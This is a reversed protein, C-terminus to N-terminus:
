ARKYTAWRKNGERIVRNDKILENLDRQITKSSIGEFSDYISQINMDTDKQLCGLIEEQRKSKEQSKSGQPNRPKHTKKIKNEGATFSVKDSSKPAKPSQQTRGKSIEKHSHSLSESAQKQSTRSDPEFPEMLAPLAFTSSTLTERQLESLPSAKISQIREVCGYIEKILINANSESIVHVHLAVELLSVIYTFKRELNVLVTHEFKSPAHLEHVLELVCISEEQLTRKIKQIDEGFLDTVMFIASVIKETKKAIYLHRSDQGNIHRKNIDKIQTM